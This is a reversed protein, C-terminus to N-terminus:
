RLRRRVFEYLLVAVPVGRERALRKLKALEADTLSLFVRNRRVLHAPKGSGRPRGPGRKSGRRRSTKRKVVM